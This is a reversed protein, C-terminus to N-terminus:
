GRRQGRKLANREVHEPAFADIIEDFLAQAARSNDASFNCVYVDLTVADIEPWTHLALHSEALVVAGTVGAQQGESDAFQHFFRGVVVLGHRQCADISFAELTGAGLLFHRSCRCQHLDATLHLGNM